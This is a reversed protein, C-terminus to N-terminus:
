KWINAKYIIKKIPKCHYVAKRQYAYKEEISANLEVGLGPADSLQLCGNTIDWPAVVMEQRLPYQPMPWEALEGGGAISAHYNAMMGVAGGWCHVLVNKARLPKAKFIDVVPSIGGIVTADPQVFDYYDHQLRYEIEETTTVIEGGAIPSKSKRRLTPTDKITTLGLAEEIFFPTKSTHSIFADEFTLVEDVKQGPFSLNETMDVAIDVKAAQSEKSTWVAKEVHNAKARIKFYAIGLKAVDEIEKAMATANMADGGSAYLQLKRNKGGLFQYVPIEQLKSMVDILGIEFASIVHRAAGQLSWYGTVRVLDDIIEQHDEIHRGEVYPILLNVISLFVEPAFVALYGEGLGKIGNELTIEVMGCTRYGHPLHLYVEANSKSDAYPASLLVPRIKKIISM